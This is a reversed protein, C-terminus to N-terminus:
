LDWFLSLCLQIQCKKITEQSIKTRLRWRQFSASEWKLSNKKKKKKVRQEHTCTPNILIIYILLSLSNQHSYLPYKTYSKLVNCRTLIQCCWSRTVKRTKTKSFEIRVNKLSYWVGLYLVFCIVVIKDKCIKFSVFLNLLCTNTDEVTVEETHHLGAAVAPSIPKMVFCVHM